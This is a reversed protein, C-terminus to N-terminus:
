STSYFTPSASPSSRSRLYLSRRLDSMAPSWARGKAPKWPVCSEQYHRKRVVCRSCPPPAWHDVCNRAHIGAVAAPAWVSVITQTARSVLSKSHARRERLFRCSPSLFLLTKRGPAHKDSWHSIWSVVNFASSLKLSFTAPWTTHSSTLM